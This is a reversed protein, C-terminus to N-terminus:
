DSGFVQQLLHVDIAKWRRAALTRDSWAGKHIPPV